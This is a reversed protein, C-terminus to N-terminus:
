REGVFVGDREKDIEGGLYGCVGMRPSNVVPMNAYDAFDSCKKAHKKACSDCFFSSEQYNCVACLCTAPKKHCNDCLIALPENRSLLVLKKDAKIPFTELVKIELATTSGFDYEYELKLGKSFVDKAKRNLSVEGPDMGLTNGQQLMKLVDHMGFKDNIPKRKIQPIRFASMHGCCELWIERLFSDLSRLTANGDIWLNLFYPGSGWRSNLEVKVHFSEGSKGNLAKKSLHTNLHRSM